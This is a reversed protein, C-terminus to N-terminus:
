AALRHVLPTLLYSQKKKHIIGATEAWVKAAGVKLKGVRLVSQANEVLKPQFLNPNDPLRKIILRFWQEEFGFKFEAM